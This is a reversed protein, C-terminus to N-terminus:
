LRAHSWGARTLWMGYGNLGQRSHSDLTHCLRRLLEAGQGKTAYDLGLRQLRALVEPRYEDLPIAEGPLLPNIRFYVGERGLLDELTHHVSETDTASELLAQAVRLAMSRRGRADIGASLKQKEWKGNKKFVAGHGDPAVEKEVRRNQEDEEESFKGTGVSVVVGLPRDPWLCRAEHIAVSTPNNMVVAGDCFAEGCEDVFVDFYVPAATTARLADSMRHWCGHAYRPKGAVRYNAHLYPRPTRVGREESRMQTSLVFVRPTGGGGAHEFLRGGGCYKEYLRQLARSNYVGKNLFLVKGAHYIGSGTSKGPDGRFIESAFQLYLKEVDPLSMALLGAAVAIVGGTSTGAILDFSDRLPAATLREITKLMQLALM